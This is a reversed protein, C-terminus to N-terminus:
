RENRVVIVVAWHSDLYIHISDTVAANGGNRSDATLRRLQDVSSVAAIQEPKVLNSSSFLM